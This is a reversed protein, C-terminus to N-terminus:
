IRKEICKKCHREDIEVGIIDRALGNKIITRSLGKSKCDAIYRQVVVVLINGDGCSNELIRKGKLNNTYGVDDLLKEVYDQPTFVQCKLNM